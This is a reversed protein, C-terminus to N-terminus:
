QNLRVRYQLPHIAGQVAGAKPRERWATDIKNRVIRGSREAVKIERALPYPWDKFRVLIETAAQRDRGIAAPDEIREDAIFAAVDHDNIAKPLM